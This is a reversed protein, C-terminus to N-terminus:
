QAISVNFVFDPAYEGANPYSILAGSSVTTSAVIQVNVQSSSIGKTNILYNEIKSKTANPDDLVYFKDQVNLNEILIMGKSITYNILDGPNKLGTDNTVINGIPKTSYVSGNSRPILGKSNLYAIFDAESGDYQTVNIAVPEAGKSVKCQVATTNISCAFTKGSAVSSSYEETFNITANAGKNNATNILETAATKTLNNFSNIDPRYAGLSLTYNIATNIAKHGTDNSIIKGSTISESYRDTKTGIKLDLGKIYTIFDAELTGTKSVVDVFKGLSVKVKIVSGTNVKTTATMKENNVYQEIIQDKALDSEVYEITSSLTIKASKNYNNNLQIIYSKLSDLSKNVYSNVSVKGKSVNITLKSGELIVNEKAPSTSIVFNEKVTNHYYYQVNAVINNDSCWKKAETESKGVLNIVSIGKGLSVTVTISDGTKLTEGATISQKIVHDKSISNNTEKKYTVTINNIKAWTIVNTKIEKYFDPMIIEIGVSKEGVSMTILIPTNRKAQKTDLNIKLFKDKAVKDSTEYDFTVDSFKHETFWQQIEAETKDTFDILDVVLEPDAGKSLTFTITQDKKLEGEAPISQKIVQDVPIEEDFVLEYKILETAIGEEKAWKEIATKSQGVFNTITIAKASNLFVYIGLISAIIVLSATAIILGLTKKNKLNLKKM